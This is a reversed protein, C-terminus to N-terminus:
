APKHCDDLKSLLPSICTGHAPREASRPWTPTDRGISQPLSLLRSASLGRSSKEDLHIGHTVGVLTPPDNVKKDPL